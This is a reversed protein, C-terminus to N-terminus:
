EADPFFIDIMGLFVPVSYVDQFTADRGYSLVYLLLRAHLTSGTTGWYWISSNIDADTDNFSNFPKFRDRCGPGPTQSAAASPSRRSSPRCCGSARLFSWRSRPRM